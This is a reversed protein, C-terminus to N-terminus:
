YQSACMTEAAVFHGVQEKSLGMRGCHIHFHYIVLAVKAFAVIPQDFGDRASWHYASLTLVEVERALVWLM